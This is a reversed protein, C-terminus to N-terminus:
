FALMIQILRLCESLCGRRFLAVLTPMPSCGLFRFRNSVDTPLLLASEVRSSCRLTAQRFSGHFSNRSQQRGCRIIYGVTSHWQHLMRHFSSPLSSVLLCTMVVRGDEVFQAFIFFPSFRQQSPRISSCVMNKPLQCHRIKTGFSNKPPRCPKSAFNSHYETCLNPM